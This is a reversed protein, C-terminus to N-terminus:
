GTEELLTRILARNSESHWDVAGLVVRRIVGDRGILFSQPFGAVQYGGTIRGEPDHLIDFTLGYEHAFARIAEEMGDRDVSVAVIRFQERAFEQHLLQMSPMEVRCPTCWTAWVNLLVVQGRYDDLSRPRPPTDLTWATFSPARAGVTVHELGDGALRTMAMVGLALLAVIAAVLAWQRRSSM